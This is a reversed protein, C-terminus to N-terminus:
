SSAQSLSLLGKAAGGRLASSTLWADEDGSRRRRPTSVVGLKPLVTSEGQGEDVGGEREEEEDDSDRDVM